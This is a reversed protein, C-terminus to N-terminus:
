WQITCCRLIPFCSVNWFCPDRAWIKRESRCTQGPEMFYFPLVFMVSIFIEDLVLLAPQFSSFNACYLNVHWVLYLTFKLETIVISQFFGNHIGMVLVHRLNFIHYIWLQHIYYSSNIKFKATPLPNPFTYLKYSYSLIFSIVDCWM